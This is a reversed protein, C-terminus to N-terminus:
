IRILGNSTMSSITRAGPPGRCAKDEVVVVAERSRLKTRTTRGVKVQLQAYEDDMTM